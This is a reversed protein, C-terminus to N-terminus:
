ADRWRGTATESKHGRRRRPLMGEDPYDCAAVAM